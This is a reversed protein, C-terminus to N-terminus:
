PIRVQLGASIDGILYFGRLVQFTAGLQLYFGLQRIADIALGFEGRGGIDVPGWEPEDSPTFEAVIRAAIYAKVQNVPSGYSRVGVGITRQWTDAIPAHTLGARFLVSLEISPTLGFGVDLDLTPSGVRRCFIEAEGEDTLNESCRPGTGYKVAFLFPLAIGARIYFQGDHSYNIEGEPVADDDAPTATTGAARETARQEAELDDVPAEDGAMDGEPSPPPEAPSPPPEAMPDGEDALPDQQAAAGAPLALVLLLILITHRHVM